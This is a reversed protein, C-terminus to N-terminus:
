KEMALALAQDWAPLRLGFVREFKSCDLATFLPRQAPTPFEATKAPLVQRTKQEHRAPDLELIKEVWALRSAAGDGALHYVGRTAQIFEFYDGRAQALALSIIQSLLRAWTPSGIQDDVIKLIEQQRSWTLVRQVFDNARRSYLWATRLVWCAPANALVAQEGALKSRGYHNLPHPQDEETYPRSQSGDFVYDTSIHILGCRRRAAHQALQEVTLCNIQDCLEPESEAKDVNTYAVANVILAPQLSEVISLLEAPRTFDIQPYDLAIVRGLPQLDRHLEWGLQGIKGLLVINASAAM